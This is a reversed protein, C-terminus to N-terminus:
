HHRKKQTCLWLKRLEFLLNWPNVTKKLPGYQQKKQYYACIQRVLFFFHRKVGRLNHLEFCDDIRGDATVSLVWMAIAGDSQGGGSAPDIYGWMLQIVAACFNFVKVAVLFITARGFALIETGHRCERIERNWTKAERFIKWPKQVFFITKIMNIYLTPGYYWIWTCPPGM